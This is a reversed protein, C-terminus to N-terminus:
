RVLFFIHGFLPGTENRNQLANEVISRAPLWALATYRVRDLLEEGTMTVAKEFLSDLIGDSYKENWWPQLHSVRSGLNTQDRYRPTLDAPYASVGNDIADVALVFIEYVREYVLQLSPHDM